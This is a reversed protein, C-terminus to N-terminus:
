VEIADLLILVLGVVVLVAGIGVLLGIGAAGFIIMMLLGVGGLIIGNRINKTMRQQQKKEEKKISKLEAKLDKLKAKLEKKSAKKTSSTPLKTADEASILKLSKGNSVQNTKETTHTIRAIKLNAETIQNKIDPFIANIKEVSVYAQSTLREQKTSVDKKEQSFYYTSGYPIKSTCSFITLVLLCYLINSTKM